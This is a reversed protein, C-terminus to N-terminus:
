GSPGQQIGDCLLVILDADACELCWYADKPQTRLLGLFARYALWMTKYPVHTMLSICDYAHNSANNLGHCNAHTLLLDFHM